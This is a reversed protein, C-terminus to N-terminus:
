SPCNREGWMSRDKPLSVLLRQDMRDVGPSTFSEVCLSLDTIQRPSWRIVVCTVVSADM